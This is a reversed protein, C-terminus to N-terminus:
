QRPQRPKDRRGDREVEEGDGGRHPSRGAEITRQWFAFAQQKSSDKAHRLDARAESINDAM